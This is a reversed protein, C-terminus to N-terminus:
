MASVILFNLHPGHSAWMDTVNNIEGRRGRLCGRLGSPIPVASPVPAVAFYPRLPRRTRRPPRLDLVSPVPVDGDRGGSLSACASALRSAAATVTAVTPSGSGPSTLPSP